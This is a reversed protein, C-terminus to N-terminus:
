PQRSSKYASLGISKALVNTCLAFFLVHEAERQDTPTVDIVSLVGEEPAQGLPLSHFPQNRWDLLNNAHRVEGTVPNDRETM